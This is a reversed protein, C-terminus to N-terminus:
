IGPFVFFTLSFLSLLFFLNLPVSIITSFSLVEKNANSKENRVFVVSAESTYYSECEICIPVDTEASTM